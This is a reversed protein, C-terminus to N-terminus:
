LCAQARRKVNAADRCLRRETKDKELSARYEQWAMNSPHDPGGLCLPLQHDVVWGPCAGTTKGTAPCANHRRFERVQAPDRAEASLSCLLLCLLVVRM